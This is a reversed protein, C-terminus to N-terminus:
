QSAGAPRTQRSRDARWDPLAEYRNAEAGGIVIKRGSVLWAHAHLGGDSSRLVGIRLTARDGRRALLIQGALARILCKDSPVCRATAEIAWCVPVIVSRDFAPTSRARSAFEALRGQVVAAPAVRLGVAVTVQAIWAEALLWRSPLPLRLFTAFRNLLNHRM